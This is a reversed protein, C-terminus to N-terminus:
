RVPQGGPLEDEIFGAIVADIGTDAKFGMGLARSADFRVPWTRVIRRITEDAQWRIRKVAGEGAAKRLGEVMDAVTTTIGPLNLSRNGEFASVHLDHAHRLAEVVRRPSLIWVGTEPAVPCDVPQGSLPERLISSAFSSAAKNPKGPRVVITPLRLSRGDLFGKRSYDTVLFKAMAKQGGYSTEPRLPTDDNLVPPLRGGFVAVSSTFVLRAPTPLRRCAELLVRTGDLNVRMGLDFDAEAAGSVVAALHFVSDTDNGIIRGILGADSVDGEICEVQGPASKIPAPAVADVLVLKDIAGVPKGDRQLGDALLAQALKRGIFGGGGTIVIKM